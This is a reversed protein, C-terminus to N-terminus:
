KSAELSEIWRVNEKEIASLKVNKTQPKYWSFRSFFESLDSSNFEYGHKAFISSRVLRLQSKSLLHLDQTNKYSRLEFFDAWVVALNFLEDQDMPPWNRLQEMSGLTNFIFNIDTDPVYDTAEFVYSNESVQKLGEFCTQLIYPPGPATIELRFRQIPGSWNKGTDLIYGLTQYNISNSWYDEGVDYNQTFQEWKKVTELAAKRDVCSFWSQDLELDDQSRNVGILADSFQKLTYKPIGGGLAPSYQHVVKVSRNAPFIQTRVLSLYDDEQASVGGACVRTDYPNFKKTNLSLSLESYVERNFEFPVWNVSKGDVWTRFNLFNVSITPNPSTKYIKEINPLPFAVLVEQDTDSTNVYTYEVRIRKPSILLDESMMVISDNKEFVLGGVGICASTDNALSICPFVVTILTM